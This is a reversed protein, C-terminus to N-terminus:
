GFGQYRDEGRTDTPSHGRRDDSGEVVMRLAHIETEVVVVDGAKVTDLPSL